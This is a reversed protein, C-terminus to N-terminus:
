SELYATPDSTLNIAYSKRYLLPDFVESRSIPNPHVPPNKRLSVVNQWAKQLQLVMVCM